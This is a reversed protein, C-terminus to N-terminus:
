SKSLKSEVARSIEDFKVVSDTCVNRVREELATKFKEDKLQALNIRV